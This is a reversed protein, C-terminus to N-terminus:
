NINLTNACFIGLVGGKKLINRRSFIASLWKINMDEMEELLPRYNSDNM